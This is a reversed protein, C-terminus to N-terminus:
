LAKVKARLKIKLGKFHDRLGMKPELETGKILDRLERNSMSANAAAFITKAAAERNERYLDLDFSNKFSELRGLADLAVLTRRCKPCNSCNTVDSRFEAAAICVDLTDFAPEYTSVLRTKEQRSLSAGASVFRFAGTTLLPLLIPDIKSIDTGSFMNDTYAFSSSIGYIDVHSQLALAASANRMTHTRQFSSQFLGRFFDDLNTDVAFWDRGTKEALQKLRQKSREKIPECAAADKGFAGVDFITLAGIENAGAGEENLILTAFSDIGGSFGTAMRGENAFSPDSSSAEIKIPKVRPRWVKFLAQLDNNANYLLERSIPADIKISRGQMMAPLFLGVLAWDASQPPLLESPSGAISYVLERVSTGDRVDCSLRLGEATKEHRFGTLHFETM